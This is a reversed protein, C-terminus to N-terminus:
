YAFTPMSFPFSPLYERELADWKMSNEPTVQGFDNKAITMLPSNSLHYHDIETGFYLKGKAKFKTNLQGSAGSGGTPAPTSGGGATTTPAPQGSGSGAICQSYYDSPFVDSPLKHSCLQFSMPAICVQYIHVGFWVCM